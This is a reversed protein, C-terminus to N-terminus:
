TKLNRYMIHCSSMYLFNPFPLLFLYNFEFQEGVILVTWLKVILGSDANNLLVKSVYNVGYNLFCKEGSSACPMSPINKILMKCLWLTIAGRSHNLRKNSHKGLFKVLSKLLSFPVM